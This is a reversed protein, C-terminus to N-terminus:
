TYWMGKLDMEEQYIKNKKESGENTNGMIEGKFLKQVEQGNTQRGLKEKWLKLQRNASIISSINEMTIATEM